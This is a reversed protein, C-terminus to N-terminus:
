KETEDEPKRRVMQSLRSFFKERQSQPPVFIHRLKQLFLAAQWTQSGKLEEMERQLLALRSQLELYKKQLSRKQRREEELDLDMEEMCEIKELAFDILFSRSPTRHPQSLLRGAFDAHAGAKKRMARSIKRMEGGLSGKKGWTEEVLADLSDACPAYSQCCYDGLGVEQLMHRVKPDYPLGVVPVGEIISFILAHLRMGLVLDCEGLLSQATEPRFRERLLHIRGEEGLEDALDELVSLDDTYVDEETVQFPVLLVHVDGHRALFGSIGEAIRPVWEAPPIPRDWYRLVVGLVPMEQDIGAEKILAEGEGKQSPSLGFAPDTLVKVLPEVHDSPDFGTEKLVQLSHHDRLTAIQCREFTLRTQERAEESHLPGVGVGYLMCPIGTLQSLIPLSGYSTIGGHNRRLYSEPDIDWYDQFLGGGGVLFLDMEQAVRVLGSMDQWHIAEVDYFKLTEAPNWSLVTFSIRPQLRKMDALMASLIAEDGVNGAGYYGAILVKKMNLSDAGM